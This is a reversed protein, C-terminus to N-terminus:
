SGSMSRMLMNTDYRNEELVINSEHIRALV